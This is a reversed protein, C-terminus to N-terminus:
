SRQMGSFCNRFIGCAVSRSAGGEDRLPNPTVARRKAIPYFFRECDCHDLIDKLMAITAFELLNSRSGIGYRSIGRIWIKNSRSDKLACYIQDILKEVHRSGFRGAFALSLRNVEARENAILM